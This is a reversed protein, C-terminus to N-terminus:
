GQDLTKKNIQLRQQRTRAFNQTAQISEKNKDIQKKIFELFETSANLMEDVAKSHEQSAKCYNHTLNDAEANASHLYEEAVQSCKLIAKGAAQIREGHASESPQIQNITQGLKELFKGHKQSLKIHKQASRIQKEDM